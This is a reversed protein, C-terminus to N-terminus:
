TEVQSIQWFIFKLARAGAPRRGGDGMGQLYPIVDCKIENFAQRHGMALIGNQHDDVLKTFIGM